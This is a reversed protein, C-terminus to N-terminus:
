VYTEESLIDLAVLCSTGVPLAHAGFISHLLLRKPLTHACRIHEGQHNTTLRPSARRLKLNWIKQTGHVCQSNSSVAMIEVPGQPLLEEFIM